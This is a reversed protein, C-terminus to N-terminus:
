QLTSWQCCDTAPNEKGEQVKAMRGQYTKWNCDLQLLFANPNEQLCSSDDNSVYEAVYWVKYTEFIHKDIMAANEAKMGKSSGEYTKACSYSDVYPQNNKGKLCVQAMMEVPIVLKFRNGLM